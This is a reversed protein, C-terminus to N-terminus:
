KVTQIQSGLGKHIRKHDSIVSNIANGIETILSSHNEIIKKLKDIEDATSAHRSLCYERHGAEETHNVEIKTSLEAVGTVLDKVSLSLDKLSSSGTTLVFTIIALLLAFVGGFIWRYFEVSGQLTKIELAYQNVLRLSDSLALNSM